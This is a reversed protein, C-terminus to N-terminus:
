NDDNAPAARKRRRGTVVALLLGLAFALRPYGQGKSATEGLACSCGSSGSEAGTGSGGATPEGGTGPGGTGGSDSGGSGGGV